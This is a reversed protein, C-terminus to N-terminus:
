ESKEEQKKPEEQEKQEKADTPQKVDKQQEEKVDSPQKADSQEKAESPDKTDKQEKAEPKKPAEPTPAEFGPDKILPSIQPSPPLPAPSGPNLNPVASTPQSSSPNTSAKEDKKESLLDKREKILPDVTWKSVLYTWKELSQEQKLKEELKSIKEQHEKDLKQKEEPKEEKGPAPREKPLNAAVNVQIPYNDDSTKSGIRVNYTFNDFTELTATMPETLGIEEPKKEPSLVDNFGPSSFVYNLGSTKGADLEEGPKKDSLQWPSSEAERMLKWSNTANTSTISISRLKEVKVFDKNLWHDAKTEIDAFPESVLYVKQANEPVMIYRGVPFGGGGFQSGEESERMAKKGLLLSQLAKGSKDKFEVLSATGAAANTGKDPSILELRALQSPGVKPSQVSKLDTLKRLFDRIENFNAPYGWREKVKWIDEKVLNVEGTSQRIHIQTVDNLPFNKFVKEGLEGGTETWSSRDRYGFFVGLGGIVFLLVILIILQKRNM